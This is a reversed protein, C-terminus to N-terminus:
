GDIRERLAAVKARDDLPRAEGVKFLGAALSQRFVEYLRQAAEAITRPMNEVPVQVKFDDNSGSLRRGEADKGKLIIDTNGDLSAQAHTAVTKKNLGDTNSYTLDAEAANLARRNRRVAEFFPDNNVENNPQHLRLSVSRLTGFKSIFSQLSEDSTLMVIELTPLPTEESLSRMSVKEQGDDRPEANRRDREEVLFDRYAQRLFSLATSRFSDVGPAGVTEPMYVLKHGELILLFLSSPASEMKQLERRLEGERFLQERVLVTNKVLRGCVVLQPKRQTGLDLMRVDHFFYDSDAYSRRYGKFFAPVVVETVRDWLELEDGFHCIFNAFLVNKTKQSM